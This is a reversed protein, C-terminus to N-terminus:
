KTIETTEISNKNSFYYLLVMTVISIQHQIEQTILREFIIPTLLKVSSILFTTYIASNVIYYLVVAGAMWNMFNAKPLNAVFGKFM